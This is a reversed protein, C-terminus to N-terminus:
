ASSCATLGLKRALANSADNDREAKIAAARVTALDNARAADRIKVVDARLRALSDLWSRAAKEEDNPMELARLRATARDLLVLTRDAIRALEKADARRARLAATQQNYRACIADARQAYEIRTPGKDGSGCGAVAVTCVTVGFVARCATV